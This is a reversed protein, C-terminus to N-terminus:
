FASYGTVSNWATGTLGAINYGLEDLDSLQPTLTARTAADTKPLLNIVQSLSTNIANLTQSTTQQQAATLSSSTTGTTASAGTLSTTATALAQLVSQAQSTIDSIR